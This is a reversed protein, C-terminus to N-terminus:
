DAGKRVALSLGSCGLGRDLDRVRALDEPRQRSFWRLVFWDSSGGSHRAGALADREREVPLSFGM